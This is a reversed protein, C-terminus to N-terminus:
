EYNSFILSTDNGGFGFSNNLINKISDIRLSSRVPIFGEDMCESWTPSGPIFGTNLIMLAIVSEIAGSASTTHGTFPKTSSFPPINNGWIRKMAMLESKDNNPTGTGHTNIYDIDKFDLRAMKLAGTIALYPGEGDPSSATQHYADCANFYGSLVGLIKANRQIASEEKELVIYASGEGLNIGDREKDFPKCIDSSLIMLSNFGNIHFKSLCEAGGAVVRDAVGAKIMEAGLLIANAGSSCATSTTIVSGFDGANDAILNSVYGCDNYKIKKSNECIGNKQYVDDFYKETNDMGGVTTGNIFVSTKLSKPNLGAVKIADRCAITGLLVTRLQNAPYTLHVWENLEANTYPVEGIPIGKHITDINQITHLGISEEELASITSNEGRGLASIIGYGTVVIREEM